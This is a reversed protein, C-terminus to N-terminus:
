ESFGWSSNILPGTLPAQSTTPKYTQWEKYATLNKLAESWKAKYRDAAARVSNHASKPISDIAGQISELMLNISAIQGDINTIPNAAAHRRRGAIDVFKLAGDINDKIKNWGDTGAKTSKDLSKTFESAEANGLKTDWMKFQNQDGLKKAMNKIFEARLPADLTAFESEDVKNDDMMVAVKGLLTDAAPRKITEGTEMKANVIDGMEAFMQDVKQRLAGTETDFTAADGVVQDVGVGQVFGQLRTALSKADDADIGDNDPDLVRQWKVMMKAAEPDGLKAYLRLDNYNKTVNEIDVTDDQLMIQLVQEMTPNDGLNALSREVNRFTTFEDFRDPNEALAKRQTVNLKMFDPNQIWDLNGTRDLEDRIFIAADIAAQQDADTVFDAGEPIGALDRITADMSLDGYKHADQIAAPSMDKLIATNEPTLKAAIERNVKPDATTIAKGVNSDLLAQKQAEVEASTVAKTPDYGIGLTELIDPALSIDKNLNGMTAYAEQTERFAESTASLESTLDALALQNSNIWDRLDGFKESPLLEQQREPTAYIYEKILSEIKEDKLLEDVSYTEGGLTVKDAQDIEKVTQAVKREMVKVGVQGLDRLQQELVQRQASGKPLAALQAKLEQARDFQDMQVKVVQEQFQPLTMNALETAPVGLMTAVEEQSGFGMQTFDLDGLKVTDELQTAANKATVAGSTDIMLAVQRENYGLDALQKMAQEALPGTPNQTLSILSAQVKSAKSEPDQLDRTLQEPTLSLQSALASQQVQAQSVPAAASLGQLKSEILGQVRTSLSGLQSMQQAKLMASQEATSSQMRGQDLRQAGALTQEKQAQAQLVPTKQAQTGIMKTSDPSAGLSQALAQNTVASDELGLQELRQKLTEETEEFLTGGQRTIAV